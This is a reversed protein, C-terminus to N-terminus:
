SYQLSGIVEQTQRFPIGFNWQAEDEANFLPEFYRFIGWTKRVGM